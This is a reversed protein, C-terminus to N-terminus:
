KEHCKFKFLLEYWGTRSGRRVICQDVIDPNSTLVNADSEDIQVEGMSSFWEASADFPGGIDRLKFNDFTNDSCWPGILRFVRLQNAPVSVAGEM